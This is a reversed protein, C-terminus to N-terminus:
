SVPQAVPAAVRAVWSAIEARRGAGLKALIHEVHASVTKPSVYLEAAIQANTMGAAILKAVEFERVTLPHWPEEESTRGRSQRRLEAVREQLPPSALRQATDEVEAILRAADVYRNARLLCTALDIRAWTAEWIRGRAEWGAMASELSSRAAVLSGASLKVLGEGHALAPGALQAWARLASGAQDIWRQAAEPQRSGLGARVGTVVFPVLGPGDHAELALDLAEDCHQFARAPEGAILAAEALGWLAPLILESEQTPRAIALSEDLLARARDHAGRGLAVFGLATRSALIGRRSGPEVLELEAINVAEDWQGAAWASHASAAAMISRCFSQEIEDAYRLGEELGRQAARYDMLRVATAAAIRYCGVGASELRAERARRALDLMSALAEDAEGQMARPIALAADIDMVDEGGAIGEDRSRELHATAAEFRGAELELIAQDFRLQMMLGSRQRSPPCALLEAEAAELIALKERRPRVDRRAVVFQMLLANVAGLADGAELFYERAARSATEMAPISDVAAAADLYGMYVEGKEAAPLDEPM